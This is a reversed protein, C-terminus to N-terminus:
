LKYFDSFFGLGQLDAISGSFTHKQHKNLSREIYEEEVSQSESPGISVKRRAVKM